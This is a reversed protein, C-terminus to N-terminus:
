LGVFAAILSVASFVKRVVASPVSVVTVVALVANIFAVVSWLLWNKLREFFHGCSDHVCSGVSAVCCVISSALVMLRLICPALFPLLALGMVGGVDSGFAGVGLGAGSPM